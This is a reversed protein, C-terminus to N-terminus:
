YWYEAEIYKYEKLWKKAEEVLKKGPLGKKEMGSVWEDILPQVLSAAKELESEPPTYFKMGRKDLSIKSRLMAFEAQIGNNHVGLTGSMADVVGKVDAPLSDYKKLNMVYPCPLSYLNIRTCYKLVEDIRYAQVM